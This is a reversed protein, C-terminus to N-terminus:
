STAGTLSEIAEILEAPEFPKGMVRCPQLHERIVAERLAQLEERGVASALVAPMRHGRSRAERLLDLGTAPRMLYDAVVADFAIHEMAELAAVVSTVPVAVFGSLKLVTQLSEAAARNDDVVLINM